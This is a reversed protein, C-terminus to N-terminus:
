MDFFRRAWLKLLSVTGDVTRIQADIDAQSEDLCFCMQAPGLQEEISEHADKMVTLPIDTLCALQFGEDFLDERNSVQLEFWLRPLSGMPFPLEKAVTPFRAFVAIRYNILSVLWKTVWSAENVERVGQHISRAFHIMKGLLLTDKSGPNRRASHLGQPQSTVFCAQFFGRFLTIASTRYESDERIGFRRLPCPIWSKFVSDKMGDTTTALDVENIADSSYDEHQRDRNDKLFQEISQGTKKLCETLRNQLHSRYSYRHWFRRDYSPEVFPLLTRNYSEIFNQTYNKLEEDQIGMIDRRYSDLKSLYTIDMTLADEQTWDSPYFFKRILDVDESEPHWSSPYQQHQPRPITLKTIM